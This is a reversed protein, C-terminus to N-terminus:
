GLHEEHSGGLQRQESLGLFKYRERRRWGAEAPEEVAVVAEASNAAVAVALKLAVAAVDAAAADSGKGVEVFPVKWEVAV